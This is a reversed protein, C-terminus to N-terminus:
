SKTQAIGKDARVPGTIQDKLIQQLLVLASTRLNMDMDKEQDDEHNIRNSTADLNDQENEDEDEADALKNKEIKEDYVDLLSLKM